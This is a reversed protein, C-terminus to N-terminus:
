AASFQQWGKHITMLSNQTNMTAVTRRRRTFQRKFMVDYTVLYGDNYMYIKHDNPNYSVSQATDSLKELVIDLTGEKGTNTDFTYFIIEKHATVRKLAYLVGCIIFTNTINPKYLSTEWTKITNLNEPDLQAITIKGKSSETAYVVWLGKEDGAFDFDQWSVGSYSYWNNFAAGEVTKRKINNTVTDMKCLNRTNHCNFYFSGNYLIAGSGQGCNMYNWNFGVYQSLSKEVQNKYLLLDRYTNYLRYIEMLRQDTNLPAVWYMDPNKNGIAFDKGWAGYKYSFGRWNLKVIFPKSINVLEKHDCKGFEHTLQGAGPVGFNLNTMAEECEALQKRLAAMERHTVLVGNKDFSELQWVVSSVNNVQNLIDGIVDDTENLLTFLVDSADALNNIQKTAKLFDAEDKIGNTEIDLVTNTMNEVADNYSTINQIIPALKDMEEQVLQTLNKLADEAFDIMQSPFSDPIVISCICENEAQRPVPMESLIFRNASVLSTVILYLLLWIMTMREPFKIDM